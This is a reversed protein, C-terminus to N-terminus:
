EELKNVNKAMHSFGYGESTRQRRLGGSLCWSPLRCWVHVDKSAGSQSRGKEPLYHKTDSQSFPGHHHDTEEQSGSQPFFQVWRSRVSVSPVCAGDSEGSSVSFLYKFLSSYPHTCSEGEVLVVCVSTSSFGGIFLLRCQQFWCVCFM